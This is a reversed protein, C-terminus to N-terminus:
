RSRRLEDLYDHGRWTLRSITISSTNPKNPPSKLERVSAQLLGAEELLRIHEVLVPNEIDAFSSETVPRATSADEVLSLIHFILKHDRKM